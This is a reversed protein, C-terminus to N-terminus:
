SGVLRTPTVDVLQWQLLRYLRPDVTAIVRAAAWRDASEELVVEPGFRPNGHGCCSSRTVIGAAWLAEVAPAICADVEVPRVLWPPAPLEVEPVSGVNLAASRCDCPGSM